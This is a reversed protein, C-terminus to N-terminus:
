KVKGTSYLEVNQPTGVYGTCMAEKGTDKLIVKFPKHGECDLCHINASKLKEQFGPFLKEMLKLLSEHLEHPISLWEKPDDNVQQPSMFPM